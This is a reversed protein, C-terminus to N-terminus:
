DSSTLTSSASHRAVVSTLKNSCLKAAAWTPLLAEKRSCYFLPMLACTAVARRVLQQLIQDVVQWPALVGNKAWTDRHQRYLTHYHELSGKKDQFYKLQDKSELEELEFQLIIFEDQSSGKSEAKREGIQACVLTLVSRCSCNRSDRVQLSFGADHLLCWANATSLEESVRDRDRVVMWQLSHSGPQLRLRQGVFAKFAALGAPAAPQRFAARPIGQKGFLTMGASVTLDQNMFKVAVSAYLLDLLTLLHL